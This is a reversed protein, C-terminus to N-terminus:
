EGWGITAVGYNSNRLVLNMDQNNRDISGEITRDNKRVLLQGANEDVVAGNLLTGHIEWFRRADTSTDYQCPQVDTADVLDANPCFKQVETLINAADSKNCFNMAMRPSIQMTMSGSTLFIM